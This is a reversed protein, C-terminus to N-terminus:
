EGEDSTLDVYFRHVDDCYADIERQAARIDSTVWMYRTAIYTSLEERESACENSGFAVDTFLLENDQAVARSHALDTITNLNGQVDTTLGEVEVRLLEVSAQESSLTASLNQTTSRMSAAEIAWLTAILVLYAAVVGTTLTLILWGRKMTM